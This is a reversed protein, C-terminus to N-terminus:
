KKVHGDKIELSWGGVGDPVWGEARMYEDRLSSLLNDVKNKEKTETLKKLKEWNKLIPQWKLYVIGVCAFRKVWGMEEIMNLVMRMDTYNHPIDSQPYQCVLGTGFVNGQLVDVITKCAVCSIYKKLPDNIM